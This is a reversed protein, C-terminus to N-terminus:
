ALLSGLDYTARHMVDAWDFLRKQRLASVSEYWLTGGKDFEPWRYNCGLPLLLATPVGLAGALHANSNDITIVNDMCAILAALGDIDQKVDFGPRLISCNNAACFADIVADDVDHQLSYFKCRPLALISRWKELAISRVVGTQVNATHWSIGIHRVGEEMGLQARLAQMRQPDAKLYSRQQEAPIWEPLCHVMLDGIPAAFDFAAEKSGAEGMQQLVQQAAENRHLMTAMAQEFARADSEIRVAPFSRQLLPILKDHTGFTVQAPQQELIRPLIGTVASGDPNRAVVPPLFAAFQIIDGVGQETWLYLHKGTLSEGQWRPAPFERWDRADFEGHADFRVEYFPLGQKFQTDWLLLQVLLQRAYPDGPNLALAQQAYDQVKPFDGLMQARHALVLSLKHGDGMLPAIADCVQWMQDFWGRAGWNQTLAFLREALEPTLKERLIRGVASDVYGGAVLAEIDAILDTVDVPPIAKTASMGGGYIKVDEKDLRGERM